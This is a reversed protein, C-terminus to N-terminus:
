PSLGWVGEAESLDRGILLTAWRLDGEQMATPGRQAGARPASTGALVPTPLPSVTVRPVCVLEDVRTM